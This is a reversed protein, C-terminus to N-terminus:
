HYPSWRSRCQVMCEKGVRREESRPSLLAVGSISSSSAASFFFIDCCGGFFFGQLADHERQEHPEAAGIRLLLVDHRRRRGLRMGRLDLVRRRRLSVSRVLMRVAIMRMGGAVMMMVRMGMRVEVAVVAVMM